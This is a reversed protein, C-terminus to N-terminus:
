VRVTALTHPAGRRFIPLLMSSASTLDLHRPLTSAAAPAAVSSAPQPMRTLACGDGDARGSFTATAGADSVDEDGHGDGEAQGVAEGDAM